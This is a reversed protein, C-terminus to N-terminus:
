QHNLAADHLGWVLRPPCLLAEEHWEAKTPVKPLMHSVDDLIISSCAIASKRFATLFTQAEAFILKAATLYFPQLDGSM